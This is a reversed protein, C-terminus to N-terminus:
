TAVPLEDWRTTYRQSRREQWMRWGHDLGERAHRLAHRGREAEIQDVAGM